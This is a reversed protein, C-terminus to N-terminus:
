ANGLRWNAPQLQLCTCGKTYLQVAMTHCCSFPFSPKKSGCPIDLARSGQAAQLHFCSQCTYALAPCRPYHSAPVHSPLRPDTPHRSSIVIPRARQKGDSAFYFLLQSHTHMDDESGHRSVLTPLTRFCDFSIAWSTRRRDALLTDSVTFSTEASSLRTDRVELASICWVKLRMMM